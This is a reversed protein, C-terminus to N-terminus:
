ISRRVTAENPLKMMSPSGPCHARGKGNITCTLTPATVDRAAMSLLRGCSDSVCSNVHRVRAGIVGEARRTLRSSWALHCCHSTATLTPSPTPADTSAAIINSTAVLLTWDSFSDELVTTNSVRARGPGSSVPRAGRESVETSLGRPSCRPASVSAM